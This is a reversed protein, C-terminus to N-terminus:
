PALSRARRGQAKKVVRPLADDVCRRILEARSLGTEAMALGVAELGNESLQINVQHPFRGRPRRPQPPNRSPM